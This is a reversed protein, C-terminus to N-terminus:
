MVCVGSYEEGKRWAQREGNERGRRGREKMSEIVSMEWRRGYGKKVRKKEDGWVDGKKALLRGCRQYRKGKTPLWTM